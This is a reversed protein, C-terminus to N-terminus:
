FNQYIFTQYEGTSFLVILTIVLFWFVAKGIDTFLDKM